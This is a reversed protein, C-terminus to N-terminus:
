LRFYIVLGIPFTHGWTQNVLQRTGVQISTRGLQEALDALSSLLAVLVIGCVGMAIVYSAGAARRYNASARKGDDSHVSDFNGDEIAVDGSPVVSFTDDNSNESDHEAPAGAM